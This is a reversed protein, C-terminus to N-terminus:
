STKLVGNYDTLGTDIPLNYYQIIINLKIWHKYHRDKKLILVIGAKNRTELAYGSSQGIAESYKNSFIYEIVHTDTLCDVRARDILV